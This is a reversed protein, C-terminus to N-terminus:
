DVRCGDHSFLEVHSAQAEIVGLTARGRATAGVNRRMHSALNGSGVGLVAGNVAVTGGVAQVVAGPGLISSGKRRWGAGKIVRRISVHCTKGAIVVVISTGGTTPAAHSTAAGAASSGPGAIAALAATITTGTAVAMLATTAAVGSASRTSTLPDVALVDGTGLVSLKLSFEESSGVVRGLLVSADVELLVVVDRDLSGTVINGVRDLGECAGREVFMENLVDAKSTVLDRSRDLLVGNGNDHAATIQHSAGLSTGSLSTTEQEGNERLGKNVAGGVKRNLSTMLALGERGREDEGRGSLQNRLNVILSALEGISGPDSRADDVTTSVNATLKALDLTAAIEKNGGRTTKDVQDLAAPDGKLVNLIKHQILGVSHEVHTKFGLNAADNLTLIHRADVVALGKHERGSEGTVNLDEGTVEQLIVDEKRNTANTRSRFVNGLLNFVDLVNVLSGDKQVNKVGMAAAQRKDENLGLAHGVRERIEQDLLVERGGGNMAVSGLTLTLSSELEEPITAAGDKDGSSNGSTTEINGVDGVDDVVIEGGVNVIVNM